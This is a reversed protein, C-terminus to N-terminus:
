GLQPEKLAVVEQLIISNEDEAVSIADKIDLVNRLLLYKEELM